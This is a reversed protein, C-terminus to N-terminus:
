IFFDLVNVIRIQNETKGISRKENWTCVLLGM